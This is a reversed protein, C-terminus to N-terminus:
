EWKVAEIIKIKLAKRAPYLAALFTIFLSTVSIVFVDFFKVSVPLADIIYKSPDLPYFKFNIQLYCIILGLLVGIITGAFGIIIGEYMFIKLISDNTTGMTRLIGIDKRKELVSMTLSGLINFTAVAIILCLIIYAAWREILMMSYLDKHLDFWSSVIFDKKNLKIKLEEKIDESNNISRLRIEFGQQSPRNNFINGADNLDSFAYALDYDKNNTEFLSSLIFPRSAPISFGSISKEFEKLSTVYLTDGIIASIRYAIPWSLAIQPIDTKMKYFKGKRIFNQLGWNNNQSNVGKLNLVEYNNKNFIIIKGENFSQFSLIKNDSQMQILVKNVSEEKSDDTFIIKIHPDFNVLSTTVLDSFGNFVSIVIILAAVGITIGVTSLVSIINVLNINHKSKLYKKAIFYEFM